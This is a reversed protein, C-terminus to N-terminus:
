AVRAVSEFGGRVCHRVGDLNSLQWIKQCNESFKSFSIASNFYATTSVCMKKPVYDGFPGLGRFVFVKTFLRRPTGTAVAIVSGFKRAPKM